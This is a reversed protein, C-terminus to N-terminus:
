EQSLAAIQESLEEMHFTLAEYRQELEMVDGITLHPTAISAGLAAVRDHLDPLQASVTKIRRQVDLNQKALDSPPKFFESQLTHLLEEAAEAERQLQRDFADVRAATQEAEYITGQLRLMLSGLHDPDPSATAAESAVTTLVNLAGVGEKPLSHEIADLLHGKTLTTGNPAIGLETKDHAANLGQLATADVRALLRRQDDAAENISVLALLAKLTDQNREFPPLSTKWAPSKSSLWVDVYSWDRATSAAIRAVSPSFIAASNDVLRHAMATKMQEKVFVQYESLKGVTPTQRPAPKTQELLAKCVGCRHRQPDISKSHRKYECGCATCTWVYKFDIQYTHKTTVKIGQSGFVQSCKAAWVKFEKGHPNDTIGNIMFNALHCFEHAIVNFLRQEDDIVKEALEITSHHRYQKMTNDTTQKSNVTERKWNARGATTKLTNSWVIKVGGTSETLEGIKGQTIQTDLQHLFDTALQCKKADFSKKTQKKSSTSKPAKSQAPTTKRPVHQEDREEDTEQYRLTNVTSEQRTEKIHTDGHPVALSKQKSRKTPKIPLVPTAADTLLTAGGLFDQHGLRLRSFPRIIDRGDGHTPLQRHQDPDISPNRSTSPNRSHLTAAEERDSDCLPESTLPRSQPSRLPLDSTNNVQNKLGIKDPGPPENAADLLDRFYTASKTKMRSRLDSEPPRPRQTNMFRDKPRPTDEEEAFIDDGNQKCAPTTGSSTLPSDVTSTFQDELSNCRRESTFISINERKPSSILNKPSCKYQTRGPLRTLLSDVTPLDDDNDTYLDVVEAHAM